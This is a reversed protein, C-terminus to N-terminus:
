GRCLATSGLSFPQLPASGLAQPTVDTQRKRVGDRRDTRRGSSPRRLVRSSVAPWERRRRCVSCTCALSDTPHGERSFASDARGALVM